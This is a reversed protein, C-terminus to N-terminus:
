KPSEPLRQVRHCQTPQPQGYANEHVVGGDRDLVDMAVQFLFLLHRRAIRSPASCIATGANTDVSDMQM